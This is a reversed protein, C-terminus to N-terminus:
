PTATTFKDAEQGGYEALTYRKQRAHRRHHIWIGHQMRFTNHRLLIAPERCPRYRARVLNTGTTSPVLTATFTFKNGSPTVGDLIKTDTPEPDLVGDNDGDVWLEGNTFVGGTTVYNVALSTVTVDGARKLKFRYLVDTATSSTTYKNGVQGEAHNYLKL